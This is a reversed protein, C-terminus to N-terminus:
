VVTPVENLFSATCWRARLEDHPGQLRTNRPPRHYKAQVEDRRRLGQTAWGFRNSRPAGGVQTIIMPGRWRMKRYAAWATPRAM